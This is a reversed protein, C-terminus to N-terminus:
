GVDIGSGKLRDRIEDTSIAGQRKVRVIGDEFTIVTSPPSHALTGGDLMIVDTAELKTLAECAEDCSRAAAHRPANASSSTIPAGFAEIIARVAEHPSARLAVTGDDARVHASPGDPAAPLVITLPGPWFIEAVTRAQSTWEVSSVQDADAVLLLFPKDPDRRKLERLREVAAPTAAGGFGYVTETPYAILGDRKLHEIVVPLSAAIEQPTQFPLTIM